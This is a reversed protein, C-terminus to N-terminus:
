LWGLSWLFFLSGKSWRISIEYSIRISIKIRVRGRGRRRVKPLHDSRRYLFILTSRSSWQLLSISLETGPGYLSEILSHEGKGEERCNGHVVTHSILIMMVPVWATLLMGPGCLSHSRHPAPCGRMLEQENRKLRPSLLLVMSPQFTARGLSPSVSDFIVLRNLCGGWLKMKNSNPELWTCFYLNEKQNVPLAEM